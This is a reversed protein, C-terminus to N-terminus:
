KWELKSHYVLPKETPTFDQYWILFLYHDTDKTMSTKISVNMKSTWKYGDSVFGQSTYFYVKVYRRIYSVIKPSRFLPVVRDKDKVTEQHENFLLSTRVNYYTKVNTNPLLLPLTRGNSCFTEVTHVRLWRFKSLLAYLDM